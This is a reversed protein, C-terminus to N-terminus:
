DALRSYLPTLAEIELSIDTNRGPLYQNTNPVPADIPVLTENLPVFNYPARAPTGIEKLHRSILKTQASKIPVANCEGEMGLDNFNHALGSKSKGMESKGPQKELAKQYLIIGRPDAGAGATKKRRKVTVSTNDLATDQLKLQHLPMNKGSEFVLECCIKNKASLKVRLM